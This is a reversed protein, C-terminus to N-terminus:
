NFKQMTMLYCVQIDITVNGKFKFTELFPQITLDYNTPIITQTLREFLKKTDHDTM